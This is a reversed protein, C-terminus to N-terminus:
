LLSRQLHTVACALADAADAKPAEPLCLLVRMMQAVQAKEARGSGTVTLKVRAPPYEAIPIGTRAVALMAVGRAHGLKAAAQPDKAFFLAELSAEHPKYTELVLILEKEIHVLREPMGWSEKTHVIGHSIHTFRTGSREVVGWGFHRTGPDLGLV